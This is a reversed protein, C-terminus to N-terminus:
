RGRKLEMFRRVFDSQLRAMASRAARETEDLRAYRTRVADRLGGLDAGGIADHVSMRVESGSKVLVGEDIAIFEEKGSGRQYTVVGPRLATTFDLRRPLVGISGATSEVVLRTVDPWDAFVGYPLLIELRM